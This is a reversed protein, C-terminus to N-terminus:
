ARTRAAEGSTTVCDSWERIARARSDWLFIFSQVFDLVTGAVCVCSLLNTILDGFYLARTGNGHHDAHCASSPFPSYPFDPVGHKRVLAGREGKRAKGM